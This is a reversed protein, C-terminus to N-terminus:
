MQLLPWWNSCNSQIQSCRQKGRFSRCHESSWRCRPSYMLLKWTQTFEGKLSSCWGEADFDLLFSRLHFPEMNLLQSIHFTELSCPAKLSLQRWTSRSSWSCWHASLGQWTYQSDPAQNIGSTLAVPSSAAVRTESGSPEAHWDGGRPWTQPPRAHSLHQHCIKWVLLFRPLLRALSRARHLPPTIFLLCRSAAGAAATGIFVCGWHRCTSARSLPSNQRLSLVVSRQPFHLSSHAAGVCSTNSKWGRNYRHELQVLRLPRLRCFVVSSAKSNKGNQWLQLDLPTNKVNYIVELGLNVWLARDRLSSSIQSFSLDLEFTFTLGTYFTISHIGRLHYRDSPILNPPPTRPTGVRETQIVHKNYCTLLLSLRSSWVEWPHNTQNCLLLCRIEMFGPPLISSPDPFFGNREPASGSWPASGPIYRTDNTTKWWKTETARQRRTKNMCVKILILGDQHKEKKKKLCTLQHHITKVCRMWIKFLVHLLVSSFSVIFDHSNMIERSNTPKFYSIRAYKPSQYKRTHPIQHLNTENWPTKPDRRLHFGSVHLM